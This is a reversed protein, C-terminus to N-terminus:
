PVVVRDGPLLDVDKERGDVVKKYHFPIRVEKGDVVRLVYISNSKAFAGLGGAETILELATKKDNLIFSGQHAVQGILYVKRSQIGSVSVTVQPENVFPKLKETILVGLEKPTQGVVYIDNLLPMTIEGDPRVVVQLSLDHEHWVSISLQDGIGIRYADGVRIPEPAPKGDSQAPSNQPSGAETAPKASQARAAASPFLCLSMLFLTLFGMQVHRHYASEKRNSFRCQSPSSSEVLSAGKRHIQLRVARAMSPRVVAGTKM